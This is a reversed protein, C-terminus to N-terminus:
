HPQIIPIQSSAQPVHAPDANLVPPALQVPGTSVSSGPYTFPATPVQSYSPQSYGFMARQGPRFQGAYTPYPGYAPPSAAYAPASWSPGISRRLAAMRSRVEPQNWKSSLSRQYMAVAREPQGTEQYLQGLHALAIPHNPQNQLASQLSKEAGSLDGAERQLWAMEIHAAPSYPQTAVWQEMLDVAEAQRNQEMLLNALGHYAPQHAPDLQLAYRYTQEAAVVDGQKKAATALNHIYNINNPDDAVARRFEDRAMAYNGRAFYARGSENMAFGNMLSCGTLLFLSFPFLFSHFYVFPFAERQRKGKEKQRSITCRSGHTFMVARRRSLNHNSLSLPHLPRPCYRSASEGALGIQFSEAIVSDRTVKKLITRKHGDHCGAPTEEDCRRIVRSERLHHRVFANRLDSPLEEYSQESIGVRQAEEYM